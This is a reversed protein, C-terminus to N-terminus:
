AAQAYWGGAMLDHFVVRNRGTISVLEWYRRRIPRETWWWGEVLWDELCEGVCTGDVEVPVGERVRVRVPRPTNPTVPRSVRGGASRQPTM